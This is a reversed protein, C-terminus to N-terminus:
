CQLQINNGKYGTNVREMTTHTRSLEAPDTQSTVTIMHTPSRMGNLDRFWM